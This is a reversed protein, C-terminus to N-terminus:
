IPMVGRRPTATAFSEAAIDVASRDESKMMRFM